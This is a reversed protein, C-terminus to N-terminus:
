ARRMQNRLGLAALLYYLLGLALPGVLFPWDPVAGRLMIERLDIAGYTVPLAYSVVRVQPFLQDLPLFFGGFFVSSLLVIMSLQVAQSETQAISSLAFGLGIAAFITLGLAIWYYTPSGLSPVGLFATAASTLGLGVLGLLLAYGLSKGILINGPGVPSVRFLELTGLLRDRVSSLAGLTVGMHQLLLAVVAPTYFAIETPQV